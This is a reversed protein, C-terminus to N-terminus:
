PNAAKKPAPKSELSDAPPVGVECVVRVGVNWQRFYESQPLRNASRLQGTKADLSWVSGGRLVRRSAFKFRPPPDAGYADACWEWVNGHMDYLGWANAKKTGVPHTHDDSNGAHWAYADLREADDGFSYATTSGARCAYEWEAETPLRYVRGANKEASFESLNQCFIVANHWSIQEVPHDPGGRKGVQKTSPNAGMVAEYQEQTVEHVGMYFPAAIAVERRPGEHAQRKPEDNPSGMMFKGAPILRFKMGVSNTFEKPPGTKGKAVPSAAKGGRRWPQWLLMVLVCLFVAAGAALWKPPISKLWSAAPQRPIRASSRPPEVAVKAWNDATESSQEVPTNASAAAAPTAVPTAMAVPATPVAALAQDLTRVLEAPTQYRDEPRKAMLRTIIASVPEPVDRRSPPLPPPTELQHKILKEMATAGGFPAQGALLYYFTCGLSYLDSRIDASRADRAQEPSIYDPTGVVVGDQTLTASTDVGEMDPTHLRALGMDLIKIQEQDTTLTGRGIGSRSADKAASPQRSVVSLLLNPPKIDRHVMGREHAHQLGLAAQRIYECAKPWPLPGHERVQRALDVANEVYDMILIHTGAIEDADSAHVINPHQLHAAARIERQFRKVAQPNALKERRILKLAVVRGLKWNRAKFVAGMGGEGVKDLLVYSGLLLQRGRGLLLENCQYATLWGRRALERALARPDSCSAALTREVEEMQAPELLKCERLVAVFEAATSVSM